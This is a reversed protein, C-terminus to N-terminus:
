RSVLKRARCNRSATTSPGAALERFKNGSEAADRLIRDDKIYQYQSEVANAHRPTGSQHLDQSPKARPAEHRFQMARTREVPYERLLSREISLVEVHWSRRNEFLSIHM